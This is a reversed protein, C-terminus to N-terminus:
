SLTKDGIWRWTMKKVLAPNNDIPGNADFKLSLKILVCFKRECECFHMQFDRRRFPPLKTCPSLNVIVVSTIYTVNGRIPRSMVWGSFQGPYVFDTSCMDFIVAIFSWFVFSWASSRMIILCRSVCILDDIFFLLSGPSLWLLTHDLQYSTWKSLVRYNGCLKYTIRRPFGAFCFQNLRSSEHRCRM